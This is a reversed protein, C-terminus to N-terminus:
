RDPPIAPSDGAGPRPWVKMLTLWLRQGATWGGENPWALEQGGVDLSLGSGNEAAVRVPWCCLKGTRGPDTATLMAAEPSVVLSWPGPGAALQPLRITHPGIHFVADAGAATVRDVQLRRPAQQWGTLRGNDLGLVRDALALIEGQAHTVMITPIRLEALARALPTMLALKRTPDLGTLPEDLLLLRPRSALVRALAVRRAEGGSLGRVPRDLLASLDLLDVVRDVHAAGVGRRDAGFRVNDGVTLHAFLRPEQFMMAIGRRHAPVFRHDDQLVRDGLRLADGRGHELGAVFRLVTTKGAGSAGSLATIGSLPVAGAVDLTFDPRHRRVHFELM